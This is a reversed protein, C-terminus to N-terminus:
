NINYISKWAFTLLYIFVDWLYKAFFRMLWNESEGDGLGGIGWIGTRWNGMVWNELEGDGLGWIGGYGLEGIGWLGIRRNGMVWDELEGYGLEGIGWLGVRWNGMVCDESEGDGLEGVGWWETRRNRWEQNGLEETVKKQNTCRYVQYVKVWNGGIVQNASCTILGWFRQNSTKRIEIVAECYEFSKNM